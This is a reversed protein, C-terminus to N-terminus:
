RPHRIKNIFGNAFDKNFKGKLLNAHAVIIINFETKDTEMKFQSEILKLLSTEQM